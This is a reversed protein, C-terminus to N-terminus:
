EAEREAADLWARCQAMAVAFWPCEQIAPYPDCEGSELLANIEVNCMLEASAIPDPKPAGSCALVALVLVIM